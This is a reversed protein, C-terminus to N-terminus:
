IANRTFAAFAGQAVWDAITQLAALDVDGLGEFAYSAHFFIGRARTQREVTTATGQSAYPGRPRCCEAICNPHIYWGDQSVPGGRWDDGDGARHFVVPLARWIEPCRVDIVHDTNTTASACTVLNTDNASM